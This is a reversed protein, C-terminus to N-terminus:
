IRPPDAPKKRGPSGHYADGNTGGHHVELDASDASGNTLRGRGIGGAHGYGDVSTPPLPGLPSASDVGPWEGEDDVERTSYYGPPELAGSAGGEECLSKGSSPWKEDHDTHHHKM